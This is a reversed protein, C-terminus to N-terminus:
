QEAKRKEELERLASGAEVSDVFDIIGQKMEMTREHGKGAIVVYDDPTAMSVAYSIAEKRDEIICYKAGPVKNIGEIILETIDSFEEQRSNDATVVSFDSYRASMEGM